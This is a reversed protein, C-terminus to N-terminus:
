RSPSPPNPTPTDRGLETNRERLFGLEETRAARVWRLHSWVAERSERALSMLGKRGDPRCGNEEMIAGEFPELTLTRPEGDSRRLGDPPPPGCLVMGFSVLAAEGLRDTKKRTLTMFGVTGDPERNWYQVVFYDLEVRAMLWEEEAGVLGLLTYIGNGEMLVSTACDPWSKVDLRPDFVCISEDDALEVVWIGPKVTWEPVTDTATLIPTPSSVINDCGVLALAALAAFFLAIRM